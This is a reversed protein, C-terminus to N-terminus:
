LRYVFCRRVRRAPPLLRGWIWPSAHRSLQATALATVYAIDHHDAVSQGAFVKRRFLQWWGEILNLWAADVPIFAHQIRPHATLWDRIPGSSHSSLNDAVQYLEGHPYADNLRQLLALSGTITRAFATQTLAQGDQVALAGYIWVTDPGRGYDLPAKVRHGDASWGPAPPFNRPTLPGLEDVCVV